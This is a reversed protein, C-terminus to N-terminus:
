YRWYADFFAYYGDTPSLKFSRINTSNLSIQLHTQDWIKLYSLYGGVTKTEFNFNPGFLIRSWDDMIFEYGTQLSSTGLSKIASADEAKDFSLVALSIFNHTVSDANSISDWMFNINLTSETSNPIKTYTLGAAVVHTDSRYIRAKIMGNASGVANLPVLTGVSLFDYVGYYIQGYYTFFFEDRWLTEATEGISFGQTFLPKYRASINQYSRMVMHDTRGLYNKNEGSLDLRTVLDGLQVTHRKSLFLIELEFEYRGDDTAKITKVVGVGYIGIKKDESAIALKENALPKKRLSSVRLSTNSIIETVTMPMDSDIEIKLESKKSENEKSFHSCSVVFVLHFLLFLVRRNKNRCHISM